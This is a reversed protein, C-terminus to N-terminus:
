RIIKRFKKVSIKFNMKFECKSFVPSNLIHRNGISKLSFGEETVGAHLNATETHREVSFTYPQRNEDYAKFNDFIEFM